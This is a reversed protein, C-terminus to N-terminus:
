PRSDGTGARGPRVVLTGHHGRLLAGAATAVSAADVRALREPGDLALEGAGHLIEAAAVRRTRAGIPDSEGYWTAQLGRRARHLQGPDVGRDAIGALGEIVATRVIDHDIGVPHVVSVTFIENIKAELPKGILSAAAGVQTAIRRQHMMTRRLISGEGDGLLAALLIAAWHHETGAPPLRWGIAMAPASAMPEEIVVERDASLPPETLDPRRHVPRGPITGFHREVMDIVQEPQVPGGVALVANGPCYYRDFFQECQPLTAARLGDIDGYGNHTNAFSSFVAAPLDIWPFRGYPRNFINRRIEESVVKIQNDLGAQDLRLGRMRDAELFLGLELAEPAVVDFYSTHDRQTTANCIGGNRQINEAHALPPLNVSGTFMLHEFLHAFGSLSETRYGVDYCVAIGVASVEPVPVVVLRLGNALRHRVLTGPIRLPDRGGRGSDPGAGARDPRDFPSRPTRERGSPMEITITM